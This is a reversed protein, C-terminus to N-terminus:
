FAAPYSIFRRLARFLNKERKKKDQRKLSGAAM